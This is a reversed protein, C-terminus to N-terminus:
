TSGGILFDTVVQSQALCSVQDTTAHGTWWVLGLELMLFLACTVVIYAVKRGQRDPQYVLNIIQSILLWGFLVFSSWIVPDSWAITGSEAVGDSAPRNILNIAVGSIFGIGLLVVSVILSRECCRQLWELSPLHFLRSPISKSKLRRSQFLYVLGFVFGLVVVTTGLLLSGGHVMNWVSRAEHASFRAQDDFQYGILILALVMPLLFVGIVSQSQRVAIWLYAAALLWAAALCWDFWSGMWIGSAKFELRNQM